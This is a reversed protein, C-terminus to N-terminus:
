PDSLPIMAVGFGSFGSVELVSSVHLGDSLVMTLTEFADVREKARKFVTMRSSLRFDKRAQFVTKGKIRKVSVLAHSHVFPFSGSVSGSYSLAFLTAFAIM